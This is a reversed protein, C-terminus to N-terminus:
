HTMTWTLRDRPSRFFEVRCEDESAGATNHVVRAMVSIELPSADFPYPDLRVANKGTPIVKIEVRRDSGFGLPIPELRIPQMEQGKYGDCCFYLSLLDFIQLMHYNQRIQREANPTNKCLDDIATRQGEELQRIMAAVDPSPTKVKPQSGYGNQWSNIVGYRNQQLGTNHMSILVAAFRDRTAIWAVNDRVAHLSKLPSMLRRHGLPHGAELDMPLEAEVERFHTDHYQTAFVASNYPNLREFTENGWHAAFQAALDAHDEQRILITRGNDLHRTIM